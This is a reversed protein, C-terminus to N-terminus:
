MKRIAKIQRGFAAIRQPLGPIKVKGKSHLYYLVGGVILLLVIFILFGSGMSGFNSKSMAGFTSKIINPNPPTEVILDPEPGQSGKPDISFVMGNKNTKLGNYVDTTILKNALVKLFEKVRIIQDESMKEGDDISGQVFENLIREAFV